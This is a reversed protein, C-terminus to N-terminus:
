ATSALQARLAEIRKLLDAHRSRPVSLADFADQSEGNAFAQVKVGLVAVARAVGRVLVSETMVAVGTGTDKMFAVVDARQSANITARPPAVVLTGRIKQRNANRVVMLRAWDVESPPLDAHVILMINDVLDFRLTENPSV